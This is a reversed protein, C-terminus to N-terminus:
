PCSVLAWSPRYQASTWSISVCCQEATAWESRAPSPRLTAIEPDHATANSPLAALTSVPLVRRVGCHTTTGCETIGWCRTSRPNAWSLFVNGVSKGV